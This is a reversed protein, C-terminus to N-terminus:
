QKIEEQIKDKPSSDTLEFCLSSPQMVCAKASLGPFPLEQLLVLTFRNRSARSLLLSLAKTLMDDYRRCICTTLCHTLRLCVGRM